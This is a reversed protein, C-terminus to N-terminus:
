MSGFGGAGLRAEARCVPLRRVTGPAETHDGAPNSIAFPTSSGGRLSPRLLGYVSLLGIISGSISLWFISRFHIRSEDIHKNVQEYLISWLDSTDLEIKDLHKQIRQREAKLAMRDSSFPLMSADGHNANVELETLTKRLSVILARAM